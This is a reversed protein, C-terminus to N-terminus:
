NMNLFKRLNNNQVESSRNKFTANTNNIYSTLKDLINFLDKNTQNNSVCINNIAVSLKEFGMNM